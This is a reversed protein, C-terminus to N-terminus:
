GSASYIVVSAAERAVSYAGLRADNAAGLSAPFTARKVRGSQTMISDISALVDTAV